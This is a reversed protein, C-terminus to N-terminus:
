KQSSIENNQRKYPNKNSNNVDLIWINEKNSPDHTISFDYGKLKDKDEFESPHDSHWSFENLYKYKEKDHVSYKDRTTSLKSNETLSRNTNSPKNNEFCDSLIHKNNELIHSLNTM